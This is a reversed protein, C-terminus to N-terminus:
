HSLTATKAPGGSAPAIVVEVTTGPAGELIRAIGAAGLGTPDVGGISVFRDGAAFGAVAAQSSQTVSTVVAAGYRWDGQMSVGRGRSAAMPEPVVRLAGVDVARGTEPLNLTWHDVVYSSPDTWATVYLSWGPPLGELVFSGDPGVTRSQMSVAGFVALRAGALPVGTGLTLLRGRVSVGAAARIVVGAHREGENLTLAPASGVRGDSASAVLEWSGPALGQMQFAGAPDHIQQSRVSQRWGRNSETPAFAAIEYDTVPAGDAGVVKGSLVAEPKLELRVGASGGPVGALDTPAFGPHQARLRFTAADAGAIAFAGTVSSFATLPEGFRNEARAEISADAVPTGAHDVVLGSIGPGPRAIVLDIGTAHQSAAVEVEKAGPDEHNPFYTKLRTAVVSWSGAELARLEYKGDPGTTDSAFGRGHSTGVVTSKDAPAGDEYRVTGAISAADHLRIEVEHTEGPALGFAPVKAIGLRDHSAEIRASGSGLNDVHFRGDVRTRDYGQTGSLWDPAGKEGNQPRVFVNVTAGEVPAGDASLVRGTVVAGDPLTLDIGSKDAATADIEDSKAVAHGDASAVAVYKGPFVGEIKWRGDAGSVTEDGASTNSFPMPDRLRVRAGPVPKRQTSITRGSLTRALVLEITVADTTQAITVALTRSLHGALPGLRASLQFEGASLDDFVFRGEADASTESAANWRRDSRQELTIKAGAAPAGDSKRVVTGRIGSAPDLKFDITEDRKASVQVTDPAYGTASAALSYEGPGLKIAYRGAEDALTSFIDGEDTSYRTARVIAGGVAGGGSDSVSGRITVGETGFVVEVNALRQGEALSLGGKFAAAESPITATVSWAGAALRDLRFRGGSASVTQRVTRRSAPLSSSPEAIVAAVQAGDIPKRDASLVIGEIAAGGPRTADDRAGEGSSPTKSRSFVDFIGRGTAAGSGGGERGGAGSGPLISGRVFWALLLVAIAAGAFLAARGRRPETM